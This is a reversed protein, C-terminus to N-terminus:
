STTHYKVAEWFLDIDVGKPNTEIRKMLYRLNSSAGGQDLWEVLIDNQFNKKYHDRFATIFERQISKRHSSLIVLKEATKGRAEAPITLSFSYLLLFRLM